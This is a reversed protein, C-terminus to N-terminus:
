CKKCIEGGGNTGAGDIQIKTEEFLRIPIVNIVSYAVYSGIYHGRGVGGGYEEDVRTLGLAIIVRSCYKQM